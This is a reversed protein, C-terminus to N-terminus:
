SILEWEIRRNRQKDEPTSEPEVKLETEGRGEAELRDPDVERVNVLYDVVAQARNQSLELNFDDGGDSDTHGVM